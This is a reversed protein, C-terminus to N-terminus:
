ERVGLYNEKKAKGSILENYVKEIMSPRIERGGLGFVYSSMKPKKSEEYFAARIESFLPAEAGFSAARDLVAVAKKGKLKKVIEEEPFPRFMRIKLLGVKKGKKRLEDVVEKTTGATSSMTVIVYDADKLKYDEVVDYYKKCIKKFEKVLKPYLEKTKQMADVQQRKHEFYFDYFDIPGITIPKKVNLLYYKPKYEGIYKKVKKDEMLGVPEVAHSTIFGDQCVMVPLLIDKHEALKMALITLDYVEQATECYLQIWGSDREAMTDSHDCHINIPGSLARNVVNMVIPLRTSAAIYVIEHMLALGNAATATMVRAGAASAGVCASMASHESEVRILETDVKGDAVFQSFSHMIDTQPTIPYAAVIDPNIQKMALAAAEAGTLPKKDKIKKM